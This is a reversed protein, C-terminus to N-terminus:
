ARIHGLLVAHTIRATEFLLVIKRKLKIHLNPKPPNGQANDCEAKGQKEM